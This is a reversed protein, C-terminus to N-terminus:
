FPIIKVYKMLCYENVKTLNCSDKPDTQEYVLVSFFLKNYSKQGKQVNIYQLRNQVSLNMIIYNHAM